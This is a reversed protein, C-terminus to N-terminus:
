IIFYNNMFIMVLILVATVVAHTIIVLQLQQQQQQGASHAARYTLKDAALVSSLLESVYLDASGGTIMRREDM